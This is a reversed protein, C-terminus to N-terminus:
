RRVIASPPVPHCSFLECCCHFPRVELGSSCGMAPGDRLWRVKLIRLVRFSRLIRLTRFSRLANGNAGM